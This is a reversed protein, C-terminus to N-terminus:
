KNKTKNRTSCNFTMKKPKTTGKGLRSIYKCNKGDNDCVFESYMVGHGDTDVDLTIDLKLENKSSYCYKVETNRFGRVGAFRLSTTEPPLQITYLGNEDTITYTENGSKSVVTVNVKSIAGSNSDSVRGSLSVEQAFLLPPFLALLLFIVKM